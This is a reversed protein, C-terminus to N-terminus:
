EKWKIKFESSSLWEKHEEHEGTAPNYCDSDVLYHPSSKSDIAVIYSFCSAYFGQCTVATGFTISTDLIDPKSTAAGCGALTAGFTLLLLIKCM